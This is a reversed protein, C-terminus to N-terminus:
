GPDRVQRSEGIGSFSDSKAQPNGPSQEVRKLNYDLERPPAVANCAMFKVWLSRLGSVRNQFCM